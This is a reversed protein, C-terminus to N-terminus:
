YIRPKLDIVRGIVEFNVKREKRIVIDPYKDNLAVLRIESDHEVLRKFTIEDNLKFICFDGTECKLAPDIIIVDGAMFRPEMSDGEIKLAFAFESTKKESYM